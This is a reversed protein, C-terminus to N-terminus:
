NVKCTMKEAAAPNLAAGEQRPDLLTNIGIKTILGPRGSAIERFWYAAIGIPWSYMEIMNQEVIKQIAPAFGLYPMMMGRLFTTDKEALIKEAVADLARGPVAPLAEGIIFLDKPHGTKDYQDFLKLILYEPTAALNFGSVAIVSGDLIRSLTSDPLDIKKFLKSTIKM